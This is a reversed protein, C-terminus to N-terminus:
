QKILHSKVHNLSAQLRVLSAQCTAWEGRLTLFGPNNLEKHEEETSDKNLLSKSERSNVSDSLASNAAIRRLNLAHARLISHTWHVYLEIHRSRGGLQRALFSILFHTVQNVPLQHAM